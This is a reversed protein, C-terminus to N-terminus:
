GVSGYSYGPGIGTGEPGIDPHYPDLPDGNIDTAVGAGAGAHICPSGTQLSFDGAGPDTLLPDTSISNADPSTGEDDAYAQWDALTTYDTANIVAVKTANYICNRDVNSLSTRSPLWYVVASDEHVNNLAVLDSISWQTVGDTWEVFIDAVTLNYFACHKVSVASGREGAMGLASAGGSFTCAELELRQGGVHYVYYQGGSFRCNRVLVSAAIIYLAYNNSLNFVCRDFIFTGYQSHNVYVGHATNFTCDRVELPAGRQTGTNYLGRAIGTTAFTIGDFRSHRLPWYSWCDSSGGDIVPTDGTNARVWLFNEFNTVLTTSLVVNETFTGDYLRLEQISTFVGVGQDTLLQDCIAQVTSWADYIDLDDTDLWNTLVGELTVSDDMHAVIARTEARTANTVYGGKFALAWGLNGAVLDIGKGNSTGSYVYGASASGTNVQAGWLYLGSVGDGQYSDTGAVALRVFATTSTAADSTAVIRCRYWGDGVDTIDVSDVDASSVIAGTVLNFYAEPSGPFALASLGLKIQTREGVKAYCSLEYSSAGDYSINQNVLHTNNSADEVIKDASILGNPAETVDSEVGALRVHGWTTSFDESRLFLNTIVAGSQTDDNKTPTVKAAYLGTGTHTVTPPLAKSLREVDLTFTHPEHPSDSTLEAERAEINATQEAVEVAARSGYKAVLAPLVAGLRDELTLAAPRQTAPNIKRTKSQLAAIEPETLDLIVVLRDKDAMHSLTLYGPVVDRVSIVLGPMGGPYCSESSAVDHSRMRADREDTTEGPLWQATRHYLVEIRRKKELVELDGLFHVAASILGFVYLGLMPVSRLFAIFSASEASAQTASVTLFALVIFAAVFAAGACVVSRVLVPIKFLTSAIQSFDWSPLKSGRVDVIKLNAEVRKEAQAYELHAIQRGTM